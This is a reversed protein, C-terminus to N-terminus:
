MRDVNGERKDQRLKIYRSIFETVAITSPQNSIIFFEPDKGRRGEYKQESM